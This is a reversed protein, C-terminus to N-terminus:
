FVSSIQVADVPPAEWRPVVGIPPYRTGHSRPATVIRLPRWHGPNGVYGRRTDPNVYRRASLFADALAEITSTGRECLPMIKGTM